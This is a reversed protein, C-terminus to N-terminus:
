SGRSWRHRGKVSKGSVFEDNDAEGMEGSAKLKVRTGGSGERAGRDERDEVLEGAGDVRRTTSPVHLDLYEDVMFLHQGGEDVM